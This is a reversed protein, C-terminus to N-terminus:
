SLVSEHLLMGANASALSLEASSNPEYESESQSISASAATLESSSAVPRLLRDFDGSGRPRRDVFAAPRRSTELVGDSRAPSVPV